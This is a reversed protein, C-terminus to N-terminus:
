FKNITYIFSHYVIISNFYSMNIFLKSGQLHRFDSIIDYMEKCKWLAELQAICMLVFDNNVKLNVNMCIPLSECM